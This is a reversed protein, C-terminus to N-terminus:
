LNIPESKLPSSDIVQKKHEWKKYFTDINKPIDELTLFKVKISDFKREWLLESLVSNNPVIKVLTPFILIIGTCRATLSLSLLAEKYKLVNTLRFYKSLREPWLNENDVDLIVKNNIEFRHHKLYNLVQIYCDRSVQKVQQICYENINLNTFKM